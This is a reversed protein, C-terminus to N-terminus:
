RQLGPDLGTFSKIYIYKNIKKLFFSRQKNYCLVVRWNEPYARKEVGICCNFPSYHLIPCKYHLIPCKGAKPHTAKNHQKPTWNEM